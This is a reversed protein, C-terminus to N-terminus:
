EVQKSEVPEFNQRYKILVVIFLLTGITASVVCWQCIAGLVFFEIYTLYASFLFGTMTYFVLGLKELRSPLHKLQMKLMTYIAIALFFFFGWIPLDVGLLSSFASERVMQCESIACGIKEPRSYLFWLYGANLLGLISLIYITADWFV